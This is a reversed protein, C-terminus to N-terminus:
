DFPHRLVITEARDAGTSIIDVRTGTVEELRKLYARAAAPLKDYDKVGVTSEKWGPMDEYVPECKELADAGSPASDLLKGDCRYATCLRVTDLGDLM